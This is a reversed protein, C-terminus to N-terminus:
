LTYYNAGCMWEIAGDNSPSLNTILNTEVRFLFHFGIVNYNKLSVITLHCFQNVTIVVEFCCYIYCVKHEMQMKNLTSEHQLSFSKGKNM